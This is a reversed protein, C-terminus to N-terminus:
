SGTQLELTLAGAPVPYPYYVQEFTGHPGLFGWREVLLPFWAGGEARAWLPGVLRVAVSPLLTLLVVPRV